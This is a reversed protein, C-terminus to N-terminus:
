TCGSVSMIMESTRQELDSARLPRLPHLFSELVLFRLQFRSFRHVVRMFQHFFRFTYLLLQVCGLSLLQLETVSLLSLLMM